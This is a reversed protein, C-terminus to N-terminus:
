AVRQFTITSNSGFLQCNSASNGIRMFGIKILDNVNFYEVLTAQNTCACEQTGTNRMYTTAVRDIGFVGNITLFNQISARMANSGQNNRFRFSIHIQYYGATLIKLENTTNVQVPSNLNLLVAGSGSFISPFNTSAGTYSYNVNTITNLQYKWIAPTFLYSPLSVATTQTTNDPFTFGTTSKISGSAVINGNVDLPELPTENLIGVYRNSRVITLAPPTELSNDNNDDGSIKLKNNLSDYYIAMGYKYISIGSDAFIIRSSLTTGNAGDLYLSPITNNGNGIRLDKYSLVGSIDCKLISTTGIETMVVSNTLAPARIFTGASSVFYLRNYGDVSNYWLTNAFLNIASTGPLGTNAQTLPFCATRAL